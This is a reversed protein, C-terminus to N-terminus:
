KEYNRLKLITKLKERAYFLRSKVTGKPLNLLKCIEILTFSELYFLRIVMQQEKSLASIANLLLEVNKTNNVSDAVQASETEALSKLKEFERKEKRLFDISKRKVITLGWSGFKSGEDISNIKAIIIHWSEQAIDKALAADKLYYYAQKCFAGHWRKVLLALAKNHGKQYQLVLWSDEIQEPM